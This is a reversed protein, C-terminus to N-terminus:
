RDIGLRQCAQRPLGQDVPQGRDQGQLRRLLLGHDLGHGRGPPCLCEQRGQLDRNAAVVPLVPVLPEPFFYIGRPIPSILGADTLPPLKVHSTTLPMPVLKSALVRSANEPLPMLTIRILTVLGVSSWASTNM